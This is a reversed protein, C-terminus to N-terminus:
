VPLAQWYRLKEAFFAELRNLVLKKWLVSLICRIARRDMFVEIRVMCLRM